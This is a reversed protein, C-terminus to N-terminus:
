IDKLLRFKQPTTVDVKLERLIMENERTEIVNSSIGIEIEMKKLRSLQDIHFELYDQGESILYDRYGTKDFCQQVGSIDEGFVKATKLFYDKRSFYIRRPLKHGSNQQYIQGTHKNELSCYHVGIKLGKELTFNILDLCISESGAIPLGGAYWYDYLVRFPRAKIKYKKQRYAEPNNLPFCFELLNIGFIGLRDLEVLVEKMEDLTDPLVPMEVMVNPIFERALSINDFTRRNGKALDHMRISFRIEKLGAAQLSQLAPRDVHDGSTYLRTYAQPYLKRAHEFFHYTEDKYLLPEGGTLALHEMRPNVRHLEALESVTDRVHTRYYKYKEQNPNFCYFCDRHCKLSIFFTSSAIGTQCAVCAPSIRNVYISKDSNRVAAGKKRLSMIKQSVAATTDEAEIELGTSPLQEMFDQYIQVYKKAYERLSANKIQPLTAETVNLIM